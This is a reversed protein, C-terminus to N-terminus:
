AVGKNQKGYPMKEGSSERKTRSVPEV